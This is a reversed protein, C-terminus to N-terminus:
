IGVEGGGIMGIINGSKRISLNVSKAFALICNTDVLIVEGDALVKQVITGTATLFVTGSGKLKQRVFGLGGCCGGLSFDFSASVEVDGYSAMFAGTQAILKGDVDPSSLDVPVVKSTPFCPTLALFESTDVTPSGNSYNVAYCCEGSCCRGCCGEYSVSPDIGSSM